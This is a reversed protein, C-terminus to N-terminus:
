VHSFVLNRFFQIIFFYTLISPLTYAGIQAHDGFIAIWLYLYVTFHIFWAILQIYTEGSDILADLWSQKLLLLFTRLNM